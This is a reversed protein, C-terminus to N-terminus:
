NSGRIKLRISSGTIRGAERTVISREVIRDCRRLSGLSGNLRTGRLISSTMGPVNVYRVNRMQDQLEGTHLESVSIFALISAKLASRFAALILSLFAPFTSGM